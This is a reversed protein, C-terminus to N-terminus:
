PGPCYFEVLTQAQTGLLQYYGVAWLGVGPVSVVSALDNIHTDDEEGAPNPSPATQWSVGDWHQTLTLLAANDNFYHGVAWVDRPKVPAVSALASLSSSVSPASLVKWNAGDWHETLPLYLGDPRNYQGVAWVDNRNSGGVGSLYNERSSANPSPVVAWATGDWRQTLTSPPGDDRYYYGTAWVPYSRLNATPDTIIAVTELLNDHTGVNPSPVISWSTGDWHEILTQQGLIQPGSSSVFHYGVAWVSQALEAAVGWLQNYVTLNPSPVISWSVGDWHLILTYTGGGQPEYRGVAWVNDPGLATLGQLYHDANPHNPSPVVQWNTGDWREILTLWHFNANYFGVSWVDTSNPVAAAATLIGNNNPSPSYVQEWSGCALSAAKPREGSAWHGYVLMFGVICVVLLTRCYKM